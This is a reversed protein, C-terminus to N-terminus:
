DESNDDEPFRWKHLNEITPREDEPLDSYFTKLKVDMMLFRNLLYEEHAYHLRNSDDITLSHQVVYEPSPCVPLESIKCVKTIMVHVNNWM